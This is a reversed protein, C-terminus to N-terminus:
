AVKWWDSDTSLKAELQFQTAAPDGTGDVIFRIRTNTDLPATVNTDQSEMWTASAEDGDDNRFRFGEQKLSVASDYTIRALITAVWTENSLSGSSHVHISITMANVQSVTWSGDFTYTTWGWNLPLYRDGENSEETSGGITLQVGVYEYWGGGGGTDKGYVLIEVQSCLDEADMSVCDAFEFPSDTWVAGNYEAAIYDSTSPSAYAEDLLARHDTGTSPTWQKTSADPTTLLLDETPM